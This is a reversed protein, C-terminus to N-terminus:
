SQRLKKKGRKSKKSKLGRASRRKKATNRRRKSDIERLRQKLKMGLGKRSRDRGKMRRKLLSVSDKLRQRLKWNFARRDPELQRWNLRLKLNRRRMKKMTKQRISVRLM